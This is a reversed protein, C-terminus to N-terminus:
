GLSSDKNAEYHIQINENEKNYPYIKYAFITKKRMFAFYFALIHSFKINIITKKHNIKDIQFYITVKTITIEVNCNSFVYCIRIWCFGLIVPVCVKSM